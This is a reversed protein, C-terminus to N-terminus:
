ADCEGDNCKTWYYIPVCKGSDWTDYYKGDAVTVVHGSLKVVYIGTPHKEAFEELTKEGRGFPVKYDRFGHEYLVGGWVHDATDIDKEHLGMMSILTKAEDWTCDLAKSLARIQCDETNRGAPNPNYYIWNSM